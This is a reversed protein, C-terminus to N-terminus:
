RNRDSIDLKGKEYFWYDLREKSTREESNLQELLRYNHIYNALASELSTNPYYDM